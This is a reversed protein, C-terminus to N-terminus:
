RGLWKGWRRWNGAVTYGQNLFLYVGTSYSAMRKTVLGSCLGTIEVLQIHRSM